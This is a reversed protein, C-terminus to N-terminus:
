AFLELLGTATLKDNLFPATLSLVGAGLLNCAVAFSMGLELVNSLEYCSCVRPNVSISRM